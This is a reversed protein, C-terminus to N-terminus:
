RRVEGVPAIAVPCLAHRLLAHNIWTGHIRRAPGAGPAGIVLMQAWASAQLLADHTSGEVLDRRVDVEPYSSRFGALAESLAISADQQDGARGEGVRATARTLSRWAHLATLGTGRLVAEQFAFELVAASAATADIGAVVNARHDLFLDISGNPSQRCRAARPEL